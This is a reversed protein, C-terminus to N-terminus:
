AAASNRAAAMKERAAKAETSCFLNYMLELLKRVEESALSYYITKGDRRTDVLEDSRLRALQQSLTPQRLGLATELESVSMEGESLHCLILLRNENGLAKLFDAAETAGALMAQDVM